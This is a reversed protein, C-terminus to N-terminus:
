CQLKYDLTDCLYAIHEPVSRGRATVPSRFKSLETNVFRSEDETFPM